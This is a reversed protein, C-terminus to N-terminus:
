EGEPPDAAVPEEVQVPPVGVGQPAHDEGNRDGPLAEAGRPEDEDQADSVQREPKPAKELKKKQPAFMMSMIRGDLKGAVEVSAVDALDTVLRELLQTGLETHHMERGKFRVSVKVRHGEDLFELIRNKKTVYDHIGIKPGFRM